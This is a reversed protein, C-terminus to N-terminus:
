HRSQVTTAKVQHLALRMEELFSSAPRYGTIRGIERGSPDTMVITPLSRAGYKLQARRDTEVDVKITVFRRSLDVVKADTLTDSELRQCWPCWDATFQLLAPKNERKAQALGKELDGTWQIRKPAAGLAPALTLALGVLGLVGFLYHRAM